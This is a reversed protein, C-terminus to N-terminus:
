KSIASFYFQIASIIGLGGYAIRQLWKIDVKLEDFEKRDIKGDELKQVRNNLNDKIDKIDERIGIVQQHLTILLDHDSMKTKTEEM